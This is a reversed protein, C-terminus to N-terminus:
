GRLLSPSVPATALEILVAQVADERTVDFENRSGNGRSLTVVSSSRCMDVIREAATRLLTADFEEMALINLKGPAIGHLARLRQDAVQLATLALEPSVGDLWAEVNVQGPVYSRCVAIGVTGVARDADLSQLYAMVDVQQMPRALTAGFSVIDEPRAM